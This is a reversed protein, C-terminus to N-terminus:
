KEDPSLKALRDGLRVNGNGLVRAYIGRLRLERGRGTNVFVGADRGYRGMFAACAAHPVATVELLAEGLSLRTGPPLNGPGLDMDVILNDGAAAWNGQEGAIAALARSSMLCVQVDPDPSGDPLSKWCGRSWHDGDLGAVATIQVAEPCKRLGRDPRVVILELPGEEKPAELIRPIAAELEERSRPRDVVLATM